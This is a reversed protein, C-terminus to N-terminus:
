KLIWGPLESTIDRLLDRLLTRCSYVLGPKVSHKETIENVKKGRLLDRAIATKRPDGIREILREAATKLVAPDHQAQINLVRVFNEISVTKAREISGHRLFDVLVSNTIRHMYTRIGAREPDYKPLSKFIRIFAEQTLDDVDHRVSLGGTVSIQRAVDRYFRKYFVTFAEQLLPRRGCEIALEEDSLSEFAASPSDM